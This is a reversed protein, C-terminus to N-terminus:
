RPSRSPRSSLSARPGTFWEVIRNWEADIVEMYRECHRMVIHVECDESEGENLTRSLSDVVSDVDTDGVSEHPM